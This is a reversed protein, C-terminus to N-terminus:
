AAKEEPEERTPRPIGSPWDLGDPWNDFLWRMATAITLVGIDAGARIRGLRKGDKLMRTSLTAEAKGTAACWVDAASLLNAIPDIM